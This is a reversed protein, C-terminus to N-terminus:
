ELFPFIRHVLKYCDQGEEGQRCPDRESGILVWVAVRGAPEGSIGVFAFHGQIGIMGSGQGYGFCGRFFSLRLEALDM